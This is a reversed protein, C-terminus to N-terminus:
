RDGAGYGVGRGSRTGGLEFPQGGGGGSGQITYSAGIDVPLRHGGRSDGRAAPAPHPLPRRDVAARGGRQQASLTDTWAAGLKLGETPLRPLFARFNGLLQILSQALATDSAAPNRFEGRGDLRGDFVLRRARTMSVAVAAPTGSDAVVSDVTFSTRYGLSDSPGAILVAVFIQAGLDQSQPQGGLAQQIHLRRHVVYRLASPGYRVPEPARPAATRTTALNPATPTSTPAAHGGSACAAAAAAGLSWLGRTMAVTRVNGQPREQHTRLHRGNGTGRKLRAATELRAQAHRLALRHAEGMGPLHDPLRALRRGGGLPSPITQGDHSRLRYPWLGLETHGSAPCITM